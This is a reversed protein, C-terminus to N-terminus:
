FLVQKGNNTPQNIRNIICNNSSKSIPTFKL